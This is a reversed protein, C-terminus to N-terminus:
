GGTAVAFGCTRAATRDAHLTRVQPPPSCIRGRRRTRVARIEALRTAFSRRFPSHHAAATPPGSRRGPPNGSPSMAGRTGNPSPGLDAQFSAARTLAQGDGHPQFVLLRGGLLCACGLPVIGSLRRGSGSLTAAAVDLGEPAVTFGYLGGGATTTIDAPVSAATLSEVTVSNIGVELGGDKAPTFPRDATARLRNDAGPRDLAPATGLAVVARCAIRSFPRHRAPPSNSISNVTRARAPESM